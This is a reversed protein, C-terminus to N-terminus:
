RLLVVKRTTSSGLQEIRVFYFGNPLQARDGADITLRQPGAGQRGEQLRQIVQGNVTLLDVTVPGSQPLAYELTLATAFPNPYATVGFPDAPQHHIANVVDVISSWQTAIAIEDFETTYPAENGNAGEVRMRVVDAGELLAPTLFYQQYGSSFTDPATTTAPPDIWFTVTDLDATSSTQIRAVLWHLGEDIIATKRTAGGPVASGLTRDGFLRGFLLRQGDRNSIGSNRLVVNGVNNATEGDTTNMLFSFWYTSGDSEIPFALRRDIRLQEGDANLSLAVRNAEEDLADIELSGDLVVATNEANAAGLTWPGDWFANEGGAGVLSTNPDYNFPEYALLNPDDSGFQCSIDRYSFGVRIDDVALEVSQAGSGEIQIGTIGDVISVNELTFLANADNPIADAAPDIFVYATALGTLVNIDMRVVFWKTGQVVERNSTRPALDDNRIVALSSLGPTGGISLVNNEGSVFSVLASNGIDKSIGNLTFSAYFTASNDDTGFPNVFSRRYRTPTALGMQSLRASNTSDACTRPSEVNGEGVTVSGALAEWPGAWGTGGDAGNLDQGAAYDFTEVAPRALNPPDVDELDGPVVDAFSFGLLINDYAVTTEQDPDGEFKFGIANWTALNAGAIIDATDISPVAGLAPDIWVYVQDNAVTGDTVIRVVMFHGEEADSGAANGGAASVVGITSQGFLKGIQALQGGPGGARYTATDALVLHAVNNGGADVDAWWGLWFERGNDGYTGELPRVARLYESFRVSSGATAQLLPMSTIGEEVITGGGSESLLTWPGAWGEGGDQGILDDGVAYSFPEAAGPPAPTINTLDDPVVDTYAEGIYVDDIDLLLGTGAGDIRVAVGNFNGAAYRKNIIQADAEALSDATPDPNVYLDLEWAGENRVMHGVIFAASGNGAFQQGTPTPGGNPGVAFINQNGFQKGIIVRQQQAADDSATTDLLIFNGVTGAPDGSTAMHTSFWFESNDTTDLPTEFIRISRETSGTAILRLHDGSTSAQLTDNSLGGAVIISSDSSPAAMWPGAWGFGGALGGLTDDITYSNFTEGVLAAFAPEVATFDQPVVFDYSLGARVDDWSLANGAATGTVKFGIADFGANLRGAIKEVDAEEPEGGSAPPNIYLRVTDPEETGNTIVKVVVFNVETAPADSLAFNNTAGFGAGIFPSNLPKGIQFVQGGPGTPALTESDIFMFFDAQAAMDTYTSVSTYSFYYTRGDDAVPADLKRFYRSDGEEGSYEAAVYNGSTAQLTALNTLGGETIIPDDGSVTTWAGDWGLGSDLGNLTAGAQYDNFNDRNSGTVIEPDDPLVESLEDSFRLDDIRTDLADPGEVKFGLADFGENMTAMVMLDARDTDLEEANAEPNIFFYLREAAEDGSMEIVVVVFMGERTNTGAVNNTAANGVVRVGDIGFQTTGFLKGMRVLQGGPGGAAYAVDNILIVQGVSGNSADAYDNHQFWSLYYTGGDDTVAEELLRAARIGSAGATHQVYLHGSRSAIGSGAAEINEQAVTGLENGKRVAWPASWGDGGSAGELTAGNEYDFLETTQAQLPGTSLLLGLLLLTITTRM